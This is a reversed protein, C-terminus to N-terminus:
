AAFKEAVDPHDLLQAVKAKAGAMLGKGSMDNMYDLDDHGSLRLLYASNVKTLVEHTLPTKAAVWFKKFAVRTLGQAHM